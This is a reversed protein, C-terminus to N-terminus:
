AAVGGPMRAPSVATFFLYREALEGAFLGVGSLTALDANLTVTGLMGLVPLIVGAVLLAIVRFGAVPRLPGMLLRATRKLPSWEATNHHRLPIAELLLKTAAIIVLTLWAATHAPAMLVWGVVCFLLTTGAFRVGTHFASWFERRTDVYLMFSCLVSAAGLLLASPMVWEHLAVFMEALSGASTVVGDVIARGAEDARVGDSSRVPSVTRANLALAGVLILAGLYGGFAIAERSFWSRRWGLFSRWAKLPRGLHLTAIGLAMAMAITAGYILIGNDGVYSPEMRGVSITADAVGPSTLAEERGSSGTGLLFAALLLGVSAQSLVLLFVLPWHAPQPKLSAQDAAHLTALQPNRTKFRTTPLTYDPAPSDPLFNNPHNIASLGAARQDFDTPANGLASTALPGGFRGRVEAQNVVTIRIAENPCAQVCAPAEGVALRQHCLDCKRVIGLRESYKPVDYPCKMVCYQCGICQDDLHRVIGTAADKEYALVPCGNLCGPDVCHHCATTVTQQMAHGNIGGTLLGVNRWSEEEDLGNLAHCATVCGKCGTCQDLDVEFAYQEGPRPHNLPVLDRYYRAQSPLSHEEHKRDFRAVATLSRQEALLEDILTATEAPPFEQATSM